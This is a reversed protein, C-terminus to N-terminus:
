TKTTMKRRKAPKLFPNDIAEPTPKESASDESDQLSKDPKAPVIADETTPMLATLYPLTPPENIILLYDEPNTCNKVIPESISTKSLFKTLGAEVDRRM